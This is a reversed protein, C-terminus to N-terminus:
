EILLLYFPLKFVKNYFYVVKRSEMQNGNELTMQLTKWSKRTRIEHLPFYYNQFNYVIYSPFISCVFNSMTM